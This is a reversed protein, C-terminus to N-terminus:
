PIFSGSGKEPPLGSQGRNKCIDIDLGAAQASLARCCNRRVVM